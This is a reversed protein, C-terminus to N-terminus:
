ALVKLATRSEQLEEQLRTRTAILHRALAAQARALLPHDPPLSLDVGDSYRSNVEGASRPVADAARTGPPPQSKADETLEGLSPQAARFSSETDTIKFEEAASLGTGAESPREYPEGSAYQAPLSASAANDAAYGENFSLETGPALEDVVLINSANPLEHSEDEVYALVLENEDEM